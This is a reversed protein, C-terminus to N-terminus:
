NRNQGNNCRECILAELLVLYNISDSIKENVTPGNLYEGSDIMTRLSTLHKALYGWLTKEPSDGTLEAGVKFNILRDDYGTSYENGKKILLSKCFNLRNRAIANFTSNKM